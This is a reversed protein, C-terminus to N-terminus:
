CAIFLSFLVWKFYFYFENFSTQLGKNILPKEKKIRSLIRMKNSIVCADKCNM